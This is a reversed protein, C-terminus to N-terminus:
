GTSRLRGLLTELTKNLVADTARLHHVKSISHMVSTHHRGGFEQGIESLSADTLQKALYMAMQRPLAVDRSRSETKLEETSLGFMQAVVDQVQRIRRERLQRDDVTVPSGGV